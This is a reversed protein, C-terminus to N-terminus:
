HDPLSALTLQELARQGPDSSKPNLSAQHGMSTRRHCHMRTFVMLMAMM